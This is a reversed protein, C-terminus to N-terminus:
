KKLDMYNVDIKSDYAPISLNNNDTVKVKIAKRYNIIYGLTSDNSKLFAKIKDVDGIVDITFPAPISIGNILIDPGYCYIESNYKVRHGNLSIAEAGIARLDNIINFLDKDHVYDNASFESSITEQTDDLIIELGQGQVKTLCNINNYDNLESQFKDINQLVGSKDSTYENFKESLEQYQKNLVSIDKTLKVKENYAEQYQNFNLFVLKSSKNFSMNSAILFGTIIAAIFIFITAENNKM